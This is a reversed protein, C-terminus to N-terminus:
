VQEILAEFHMEVSSQDRGGLADRLESLRLRWTCRWVQDITAELHLEQNV